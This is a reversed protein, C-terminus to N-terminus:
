TIKLLVCYKHLQEELILFNCCRKSLEPWSKNLTIIHYLKDAREIIKEKNSNCWSLQNSLLNKYNIEIKDDIDNIKMDIPTLCKPHIPIMNNFNIAGWKGNNIKMFDIQNKMNIHKIKPSALPAYYNIGKVTLLIGIFPRHNNDYHIYPVCPDFQRLFDCYGEDARYFKLNM